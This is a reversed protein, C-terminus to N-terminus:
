YGIKKKKKQKNNSLDVENFNYIDALTMGEESKHDINLYNFLKNTDDVSLKKFEYDVILRGKRLLAEDINKIDTNFTAVVQIHLCDSLIGDTMNLLNAVANASGDHGERDKIVREADEIVLVSNMNDMLFTIFEPNCLGDAATQPLWMVKKDKILTSLHRLYHSKGTGPEGHLLVIGKSKPTNLSTVIKKHVPLFDTGYCHELSKVKSKVEFDVTDLGYQTSRILTINGRKKIKFKTQDILAILKHVEQETNIDYAFRVSLSESDGGSGSDSVQVMIQDEENIFVMEFILSKQNRVGTRKFLVEFKPQHELVEVVDRKFYQDSFTYFSPFTQFNDVFYNSLPFSLEYSTDFYNKVSVLETDTQMKM